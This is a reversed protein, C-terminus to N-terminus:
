PAGPAPYSAWPWRRCCSSRGPIPRWRPLLGGARRRCGGRCGAGAPPGTPWPWCSGPRSVPRGCCTARPRTATTGFETLDGGSCFSPGAGELVVSGDSGALARFVEVLADRMTVDVANRVHPRSLVVHTVDGERRVVVPPGSGAVAPATAGRAALWTRFESGGQLLGYTVSEAWLGGADDRWSGRRMLQAMALAARPARKAAGVVAELTKDLGWPGDPLVIDFGGVHEPEGDRVVAVTLTPLDRLVAEIRPDALASWGRGDVM